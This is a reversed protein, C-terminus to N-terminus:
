SLFKKCAIFILMLLGILLAFISVRPALVGGKVVFCDLEALFMFVFLFEVFYSKDRLIFLAIMLPLFMPFLFLMAFIYQVRGPISAYNENPSAAYLILSIILFLSLCFLFRRLQQRLLIEDVSLQKLKERVFRALRREKFSKEDTRASSDGSIKAGCRSCFIDDDSLEHGCKRCRM